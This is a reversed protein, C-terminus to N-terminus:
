SRVSVAEVGRPNMASTFDVTQGTVLTRYGVTDISTYEVFVQDTGDDPHIYGFGKEADFWAVTGRRWSALQGTGRPRHHPGPRCRDGMEAGDTQPVRGRNHM